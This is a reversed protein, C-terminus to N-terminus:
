PQYPMTLCKETAHKSVTEDLDLDSLSKPYAKRVTRAKFVGIAEVLANMADIRTNNQHCANTILQPHQMKLSAIEHSLDERTKRLASAEKQMQTSTKELFDIRPQLKEVRSLQSDLFSSVTDIILDENRSKNSALYPWVEVLTLFAIKVLSMPSLSDNASRSARLVPIGDVFTLAIQKSGHIRSTLSLMIACNIRNQEVGSKVDKDFKEIDNQSHLDKVHKIEVLARVGPIQLTNFDYQWFRDAFGHRQKRSVDTLVGIETEAFVEDVYREGIAGKVQSDSLTSLFNRQEDNLNQMQEQQENKLVRLQENCNTAVRDKEENIKHMQTQVQALQMEYSKVFGHLEAVRSAHQEQLTDIRLQMALRETDAQQRCTEKVDCISNQHLSIQLKLQETESRSSHLKSEYLEKAIDIDVQCKRKMSDTEAQHQHLDIQKKREARQAADSIEQVYKQELAMRACEIQESIQTQMEALLQAKDCEVQNMNARVLEIEKLLTTQTSKSSALHREYKDVQEQVAFNIQRNSEEKHKIHIRDIEMNKDALIGDFHDELEKERKLQQKELSTSIEDHQTKIRKKLTQIEAALQQIGDSSLECHLASCAAECLSLAEAVEEPAQMSIWTACSIQEPRVYLEIKALANAASMNHSYRSM